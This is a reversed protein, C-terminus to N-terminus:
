RGQEHHFTAFRGIEVRWRSRRQRVYNFAKAEHFRVAGMRDM